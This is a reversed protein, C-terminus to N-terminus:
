WPCGCFPCEWGCEEGDYSADCGLCGVLDGHNACDIPEEWDCQESEVAMCDSDLWPFLAHELWMEEDM